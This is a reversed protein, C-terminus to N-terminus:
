CKAVVKKTVALIVPILLLQIIIGPLGTITAQFVNIFKPLNIMLLNICVLIAFGYVLRGCIMSLILSLYHNINLKNYLIGATFGYVALEIIMFGLLPIPPMGTILFSLLPCFSGVLLGYFPGCFFGALIIPLHMPLLISGLSPGFTLHIIQPLIIGLAAFFGAYVIKRSNM